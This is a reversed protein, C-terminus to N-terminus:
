RGFWPRLLVHGVVGLLYCFCVAGFGFSFFSAGTAVDFPVTIGDLYSSTEPFPLYAQVLYASQGEPCGTFTEAVSVAGVPASPSCVLASVLQGSAM